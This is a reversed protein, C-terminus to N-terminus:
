RASGTLAILGSGTKVLIDGTSTNKCMGGFEMTSTDTKCAPLIIYGSTYTGRGQVQSFQTVAGICLTAILFGIVIGVLIDRMM